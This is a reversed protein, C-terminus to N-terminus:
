KRLLPSSLVATQRQADLGLNRLIDVFDERERQRPQFTVTIELVQRADRGTLIDSSISGTTLIRNLDYLALFVSSKGVNNRGILVNFQELNNLKVDKLSRYNKIELTHLLM